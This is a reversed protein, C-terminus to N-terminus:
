SFTIIGSDFNMPNNLTIDNFQINNDSFSPIDYFNIARMYEQSMCNYLNCKISKIYTEDYDFKTQFIYPYGNLDEITGM